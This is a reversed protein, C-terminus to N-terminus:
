QLCLSFFLSYFLHVLALSGFTRYLKKQTTIEVRKYYDFKSKFKIYFFVHGRTAKERKELDYYFIFLSLPWVFM